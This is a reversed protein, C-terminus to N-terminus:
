IHTSNNGIDVVFNSNLKNKRQRTTHKTHPMLNLLPLIPNNPFCSFHMKNLMFPASKKSIRRVFPLM